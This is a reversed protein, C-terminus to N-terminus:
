AKKEVVQPLMEHRRTGRLEPLDDTLVLRAWTEDPDERLAVTFPRTLKVPSERVIPKVVFETQATPARFTALALDFCEILVTFGRAEKRVDWDEVRPQRRAGTQHLVLMTGGADRLEHCFEALPAPEGQVGPEGGMIRELNDIIILPAGRQKRILDRLWARREKDYLLFGCRSYCEIPATQLDLNLGRALREFRRKFSVTGSDEDILIVHQQEVRFADLFDYGGAVCIALQEALWAKGSHLEGILVVSSGSPVLGHVLWRTM